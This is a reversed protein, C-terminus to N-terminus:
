GETDAPMVADAEIEVLMAPDILRSVEVLTTAPPAAGFAASHARAVQKWQDIDTVYTRTRVVDELGCGAKELAAAIVRICQRAQEYMDGEGVLKGDEGVSASGSVAIISGARVARCYGFVPEWPAGSKIRVHKDTM